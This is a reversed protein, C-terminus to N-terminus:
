QELQHDARARSVRESRDLVAAMREAGAAAKIAQQQKASLQGSGEM